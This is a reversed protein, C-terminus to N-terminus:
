RLGVTIDNPYCEEPGLVEPCNTRLAYRSQWCLDCEDVFPGAPQCDAEAALRYLGIPGQEALTELLPSQRISYQELIDALSDVYLNGIILGYCIMVNGYPDIWVMQPDFPTTEGLCCCLNRCPSDPLDLEDDSFSKLAVSSGKGIMRVSIPALPIAFSGSGVNTEEKETSCRVVFSHKGLGQSFVQEAAVRIHEIPIHQQHYSDASLCVGNVGRKKLQIVIQKAREPSDGWFGNSAIGITKSGSAQIVELLRHLEQEFLLPEGGSVHQWTLSEPQNLSALAKRALDHDLVRLPGDVNFFCHGCNLNCRYSLIWTIGSIVLAV